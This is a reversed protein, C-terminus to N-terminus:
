GGMGVAPKVGSLISKWSYNFIFREPDRRYRIATERVPANRTPNSEKIILRNALFSYIDERFGTKSRDKNLFEIKLDSYIFRMTGDSFKEGAHFDFTMSRVTGEKISINEAPELMTNLTTMPLDRLTGSCNFVMDNTNLPFIFRAKLKGKNMLLGTADVTMKDYKSFLMSDSTFGGIVADVQDFSIMGPRTTGYAVEEYKVNTNKLHITDIATYFPISKLVQQLSKAPGTKRAINKDRYAEINLDDLYLLGAIFRGEEFFSKVDLMSFRVTGATINFRDTQRGAKHAFDKKSYNPILQVSDLMLSADFYSTTLRKVRISYLENINVYSFENVVLNLQDALFMKGADKASKNIRMNTILLANNTSSFEAITDMRNSFIKMEANIVKIESIKIADWQQSILDYASFPKDHKTVDPQPKRVGRYLVGRPKILELKSFILKDRFLYAKLNLNLLNLKESSFLYNATTSDAGEGPQILFDNIMVSRRFLNISLKGMTLIYKGDTENRVREELRNKLISNFFLGFGIAVLAFTIALAGVLYAFWRVKSKKMNM